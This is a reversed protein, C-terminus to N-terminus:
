TKNPLYSMNSIDYKNNKNMLWQEWEKKNLHETLDLCNGDGLAWEEVIKTYESFSIDMAKYEKEPYNMSNDKDIKLKKFM